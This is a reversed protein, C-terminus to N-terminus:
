IRVFDAKQYYIAEKYPQAVGLGYYDNTPNEKTWYNLKMHNYRNNTYDGFTGSLMNNKFQSGNRYYIFFSLDFARYSFRNTVGLTFKPLETGLVVRDELLEDDSSQIKGDDQQDVVK